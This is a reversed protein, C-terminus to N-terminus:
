QSRAAGTRISQTMPQLLAPVLAHPPSAQRSAGTFAFRAPPTWSVGDGSAGSSGGLKGVWPSEEESRSVFTGPIGHRKIVDSYAEPVDVIKYATSFPTAIKRSPPAETKNLDLM